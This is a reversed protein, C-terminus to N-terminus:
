YELGLFKRLNQLKWLVAPHYKLLQAQENEGFLLEPEYEGQDLFWDLFRKENEEYSSIKASFDKASSKMEGLNATESQRLLPTLEDEIMKQDIEDITHFDKKRWDEKSTIGFLIVTRRLSALNYQATKNALMLVDYLDRAASREMLAKIKGAFLEEFSVSKFEFAYDEDLPYPKKAYVGWVPVRMMYNLDIELTFNGGFASSARLRWKAGAHEDAPAHEVAISRSEILKKLERELRPREELMTQRDVSGVYNLDIDVSLRPLPFWFLNIATGGKLAFKDRLLPHRSIERLLDLLRMQKQLSEAQFGTQGALKLLYEKSFM